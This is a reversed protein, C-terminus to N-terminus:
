GEKKWIELIIGGCFPCYEFTDTYEESFTVIDLEVATGSEGSDSPTAKGLRVEDTECRFRAFEECCYEKSM